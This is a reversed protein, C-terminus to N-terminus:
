IFRVDVLDGPKIGAKGAPIAAIGDAGTLAHIHASGHYEVPFVKGDESFRVPIWSLRDSRKRQYEIGMPLRKIERHIALGTMARILPAVLLSFINFSSVPNGPLGFIRKNELTGFVTPKGPQIAITQFKIDIGLKLYVSPVFDFDGMSVGGTLLLIDCGSLAKRVNETTTAEDDPIVGLYSPEAGARAALSMLQYANSNRVQAPGPVLDPEVIEDGTSLITIQPKCYVRPAVCGAAAMVAIHQSAVLTGKELVVQGNRVDEGQRAINDRTGTATFKVKGEPNIFTEEVKIVCDAGGPIKAGTMIRVCQGPSITRSPLAGAPVTEIIELARHLDERRCAFGDMASKDFPPMDVDSVVDMALVRGHSDLLGVEEADCPIVSGLVIKLAEEFTIM